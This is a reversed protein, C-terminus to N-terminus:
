RCFIATVDDPASIEDAAMMKQDLRDSDSFSDVDTDDDDDYFSDSSFSSYNSHDDHSHDTCQEELSDDASQSQSTTDGEHDVIDDADHNFDNDDNSTNIEDSHISTSMSSRPSSSAVIKPIIHQSSHESSTDHTLLNPTHLVSTEHILKNVRSTLNRDVNINSKKSMNPNMDSSESEKSTHQDLPKDFSMSHLTLTEDANEPLCGFLNMTSEVFNKTAPKVDKEMTQIGLPSRNVTRHLPITGHTEANSTATVPSEIIVSNDDQPVSSSITNGYKMEDEFSVPVTIIPILVKKIEYSSTYTNYSWLSSTGTNTSYESPQQSLRFASNATTQALSLEVLTAVGSVDHTRSDKDLTAEENPFSSLESTDIEEKQISPELEETMPTVNDVLEQNIIPSSDDNRNVNTGSSSRLVVESEGDVSTEIITNYNNQCEDDVNEQVRKLARRRGVINRHSQIPPLVPAEVSSESNEKAKIIYNEPDNYKRTLNGKKRRGSVQQLL